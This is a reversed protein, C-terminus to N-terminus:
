NEGNLFAPRLGNFVSRNELLLLDVIHSEEWSCLSCLSHLSQLFCIEKSEHPSSPRLTTHTQAKSLALVALCPRSIKADAFISRVSDEPIFATNIHSEEWSCLTHLMVQDYIIYDIIYDTIYCFHTYKQIAM